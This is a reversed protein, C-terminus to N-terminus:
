LAGANPAAGRNQNHVLRELLGRGIGGLQQRDNLWQLIPILTDAALDNQWQLHIGLNVLLPEATQCLPTINEGPTASWHQAIAKRVGDLSNTKWSRVCTVVPVGQQFRM